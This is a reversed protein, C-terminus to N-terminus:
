GDNDCVPTGGCKHQRAAVVPEEGLAVWLPQPLVSYHRRGEGGWCNRRCGHTRTVYIDYKLDLEIRCRVIFANLQIVEVADCAM